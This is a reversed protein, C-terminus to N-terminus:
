AVGKLMVSAIEFLLILSCTDAITTILPTATLAPDLKLARAGLPLLCGICKSLVVTAMMAASVTLAVLGSRGFVLLQLVYNVASLVAGVLLSVRFEKLLVRPTDSPQMEGMALARIILTSTQQGCNGGSDMLMPICATLAVGLAPVNLLMAEYHTIILGTLISGILMLVLWPLRNGALRWVSTKLYTDESPMLANMLEIDETTEEEIVDMIDDVTVIGVLRDTTDVVPLSLLDYRRVLEAARERDDHTHVSAFDTDMLKDVRTGDGATILRRLPLTGCLVGNENVIYLTNITEKDVGNARIDNMAEAVTTGLPLRCYEITMISGTGGDPYSLFRNIIRRQEENVNSLVRRVLEAPMEELFDVADDVFMSEVLLGAEKDGISFVLKERQEDDMYSFVDASRDSPLVRFVRLLSEVELGSLYQAIDVPNCMLLAGRMENMRGSALLANLRETIIRQDM